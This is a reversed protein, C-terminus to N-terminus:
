PSFLPTAGRVGELLLVGHFDPTPGDNKGPFDPTPGDNKGPFDPTV